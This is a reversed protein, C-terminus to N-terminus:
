HSRQKSSGSLLFIPSFKGFDLAIIQSSITTGINAGLVVGMAQRLGLLNANVFVITIIIVASSSDLVATVVVGTIISYFTNSTFKLIINKVNEGLVSQIHGSLSNVGYSFLVLGGVLALIVEIM